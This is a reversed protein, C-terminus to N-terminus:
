EKLLTYISSNGTDLVMQTDTVSLVYQQYINGDSRTTTIENQGTLDYTGNTETWPLCDGNDNELFFKTTYTGNNLFEFYGQKDCNTFPPAGEASDIFWKGLILNPDVTAQTTFSYTSSETIGGNNDKAIVKWFYTTDYDLSDQLMFSTESLNAALKTTPPNNTDLYFDHSVSDGNTDPAINWSFIPQLAVNTDNDAVKILTLAGPEQNIAPSDDGSSCSNLAFGACLLLLLIKFYNQHAKM